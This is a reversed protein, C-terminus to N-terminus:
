KEQSVLAITIYIIVMNKGIKIVCLLLIVNYIGRTYLKYYMYM